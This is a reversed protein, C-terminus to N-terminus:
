LAYLTCDEIIILTWEVKQQRQPDLYWGLFTYRDKKTFPASEIKDTVMPSVISGGETEFTVTFTTPQVIDKTYYAYVTKNETLMTTQYTNETLPKQWINEDLYWGLFTYGDKQATPLTLIENGKTHITEVIKTDDFFYIVPTKLFCGSFFSLDFGYVIRRSRNEM